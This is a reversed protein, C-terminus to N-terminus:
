SINVGIKRKLANDFADWVREVPVELLDLRKNDVHVKQQNEKKGWGSRYMM